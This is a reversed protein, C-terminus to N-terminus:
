RRNGARAPIFRPPGSIGRGHRATGRVRPSSGDAANGEQAFGAQEGCARPHVPPFPQWALSWQRNGARAPIFRSRGRRRPAHRATGRVRPSSGAVHEIQLLQRRQEGCARPHVSRRGNTHPRQLRNGARAPIFRVVHEVELRELVTGRVRPSSGVFHVRQDVEGRQEGCARPHVPATRRDPRRNGSNGARAPIFRFQGKGAGARPVTGRVRPSSGSSSATTM